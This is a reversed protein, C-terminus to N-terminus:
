DTAENLAIMVHSSNQQPRLTQELKLFTDSATRVRIDTGANKLSVTGRFSLLVADPGWAILAKSDLLDEELVDFAETRALQCAWEM